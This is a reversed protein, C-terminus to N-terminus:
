YEPTQMYDTTTRKDVLSAIGCFILAIGAVLFVGGFGYKVFQGTQFAANQIGTFADGGYRELYVDGFFGNWLLIMMLISVIGSILLGIGRTISAGRM